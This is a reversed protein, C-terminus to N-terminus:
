KIHKWIRGYRLAEITGICVGYKESMEKFSLTCKRIERVQKENLISSPNKSGKLSRNADVQHNMNEQSNVWELNEVRNDNRVFNKHNIYPREQTRPGIFAIAVVQHVFYIKAKGSRDTLTVRNYGKPCTPKIIFGKRILKGGRWHNCERDLVKVQGISSVQYLGEYGVVDKWIEKEINTMDKFNACYLYSFAVSMLLTLTAKKMTKRIFCGGLQWVM